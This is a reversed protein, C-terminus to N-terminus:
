WAAINDKGVIQITKPKLSITQTIVDGTYDIESAWELLCNNLDFEIEDQGATRVFKVVLDRKTANLFDLAMGYSEWILELEAEYEATLIAYGPIVEGQRPLPELNNSGSISCSTVKGLTTDGWTVTMDTFKFPRTTPLSINPDTYTTLFSVDKASFDLSVNVIGDAEVSIEWDSVLAGVVREAISGRVAELTMSPLTNGLTVTHTYPAATGSNAVSGLLFPLFTGDVMYFEASPNVNRGIYLHDYYGREGAYIDEEVLELGPDFSQPLGLTSSVTAAQGYTTEKGWYLKRIAFSVSM